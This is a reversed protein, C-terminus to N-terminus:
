KWRDFWNHMKHKFSYSEVNISFKSILLCFFFLTATKGTSLLKEETKKKERECLEEYWTFTVIKGSLMIRTVFYGKIIDWNPSIKNSLIVHIQIDFM